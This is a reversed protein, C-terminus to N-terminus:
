AIRLLAAHKLRGESSLMAWCHMCPHLACLACVQYPNALREGLWKAVPVTVANGAPHHVLLQSNAM